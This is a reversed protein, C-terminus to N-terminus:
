LSAYQQPEDPNIIPYIYFDQFVPFTIHSATVM